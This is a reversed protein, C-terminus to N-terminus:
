SIKVLTDSTTALLITSHSLNSSDVEPDHAGRALRASRVRKNVGLRPLGSRVAMLGTEARM